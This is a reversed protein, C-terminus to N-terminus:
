RFFVVHIRNFDDFDLLTHKLIIVTCRISQATLQLTFADIQKVEHRGGTAALSRSENLGDIQKFGFKTDRDHLSIDIRIDIGDLDFLAGTHVRDLEM